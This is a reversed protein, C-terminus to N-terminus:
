LFFASRDAPLTLILITVVTLCALTLIRILVSILIRSSVTELSLVPILVSVLCRVLILSGTLLPFRYTRYALLLSVSNRRLILERFLSCILLAVLDIVLIFIIFPMTGLVTRYLASLYALM